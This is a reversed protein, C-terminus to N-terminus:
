VKDAQRMQQVEWNRGMVSYLSIWGDFSAASFVPPDRPCWQVDFCWSSQTPLKYVVESSGLNWCLIQSDKASSLLLEADAQSWSVSLIGRSHSELVKLPSSAFRLDWLQIVPLRDDESCLVLQTAIDPHWALGSCHMRNSHDSVKIIPENKRLDWVVAKGSPHASSLIHQVQRNWSLAKIDEPPQQPLIPITPQPCATVGPGLSLEDGVAGAVWLFVLPLCPAAWVLGTGPLQHTKRPPDKLFSNYFSLSPCIGKTSRPCLTM